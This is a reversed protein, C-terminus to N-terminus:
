KRGDFFNKVWGENEFYFEQEKGLYLEEEKRYVPVVSFSWDMSNTWVFFRVENEIIDDTDDQLIHGQYQNQIQQYSVKQFEELVCIYTYQYQEKGEWDKLYLKLTLNEMNRSIMGSRKMRKLLPILCIEKGYHTYATIQYPFLPEGMRISIDAFGYRKEKLYKLIGEVSDSKKETDAKRRSFQIMRGPIYEKLVERFIAINCSQGTLKIIFYEELRKEQDLREMWRSITGYIDARLLQELEYINLSISPFEKVAAMGDKARISFKWKDVPIWVVDPEDIAESSLIVRLTKDRCYFEKKVTEALHFFLYFNNKVKYYDTRSQGELKQFCTPLYQEAERYTEELEQYFKETGYQDVYRFIDRDYASLIEEKSKLVLGCCANVTMIKLLQMIRYTLANGGFNVDGNEYTTELEIRYAVRRDWIRFRCSYLNMASGGCDILLAKQEEGDQFQHMKMIESITHYFVATGEEIRDQQEVKYEPFIENVLQQFRVKQKMPCCIHVEDVRCKFQNCVSQIVYRFYAKLIEKRSLVGRRGQGDTIEELKEYDMIWRKIDYFICFGEEIYSSKGLRVADYGFLFEPKGEEASLLAAVSPLFISEKGDMDYFLAYNVENERWELEKQFCGSEFYSHDLYVGASTYCTGFDIVVPMSLPIPKRIEFDFLPIRYVKILESVGAMDGNYIRYLLDSERREMCYLSYNKVKSERCSIEESKVLYLFDMNLGVSVVNLVACLTGDEGVVLANTGILCKQYPITIKDLYGVALGEYIVIKLGCSCVMGEKEYFVMKRVLKELAQMGGKKEKRILFSEEAGRYRLIVRILEERDMPNIVGQIIKEKRCIERLQFTTMRLLEAKRYRIEATKEEKKKLRYGFRDM